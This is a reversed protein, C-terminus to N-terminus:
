FDFGGACLGGIVRSMLWLTKMSLDYSPGCDECMAGIGTLFAHAPGDWVRQVVSVLSLSQVFTAM